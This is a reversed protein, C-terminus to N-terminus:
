PEHEEELDVMLEDVEQEGPQDIGMEVSDQDEKPDDEVPDDEEGQNDEDGSSPSIVVLDQTDPIDIVVHSEGLIDPMLM